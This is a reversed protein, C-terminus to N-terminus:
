NDYFGNVQRPLDELPHFVVDNVANRARQLKQDEEKQRCHANVWLSDHTIFAKQVFALRLVIQVFNWPIKGKWYHCHDEDCDQVVPGDNGNGVIVHLRTLHRLLPIQRNHAANCCQKASNSAASRHQHQVHTEACTVGFREKHFMQIHRLQCVSLDLAGQIQLHRYGIEKGHKRGSCVSKEDRTTRTNEKTTSSNECRARGRKKGPYPGEMVHLGNWSSENADHPRIAENPEEDLVDYLNESVRSHVM